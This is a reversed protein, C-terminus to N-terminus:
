AQNLLSMLIIPTSAISLITSVFVVGAVEEPQNNWRQAFLFTYVASPMSCQLIFAPRQIGRMGFVFAVLLGIVLGLGIRLASAALAHNIASVSLKALSAGLLLLMLPVAMGGVLTLTDVLAKPVPVRCYAAAAGVIVAYILPMRLIARWNSRGSIIAQGITYNAISSLAFFIVAHALGPPGFAYLAIPLGLNGANPFAIAPLFTTVRLGLAMILPAGLLAFLALAVVSAAATSVFIEPELQTKLLTSVILCPTAIDTAIPTLIAGDLKRGSIVWLYGTLGVCIVPLVCEIVKIALEYGM